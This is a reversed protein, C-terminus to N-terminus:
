DIFTPNKNKNKNKNKGKGMAIEKEKIKRGPRFLSSYQLTKKELISSSIVYKGYNQTCMGDINSLFSRWVWRSCITKFNPYPPFFDRQSSAFIEGFSWLWWLFRFMWLDIHGSSIGEVTKVSNTSPSVLESEITNSFDHCDPSTGPAQFSLCYLM